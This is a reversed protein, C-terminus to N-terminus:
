RPSFNESHGRARRGRFVRGKEVPLGDVMKAGPAHMLADRQQFLRQLDVGAGAVHM